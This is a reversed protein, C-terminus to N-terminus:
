GIVTFCGISVKVETSASAQVDTCAKGILQIQGLANYDWCGDSICTNSSYKRRYLDIKPGNGSLSVNIQSKDPTM